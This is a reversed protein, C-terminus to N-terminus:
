LNQIITETDTKSIFNDATGYNMPLKDIEKLLTDKFLSIIKDTDDWTSRTGSDYVIKEIKEKLTSKTHNGCVCDPLHIKYNPMNDFTDKDVEIERLTYKPEEKGFNVAEEHTTKRGCGDCTYVGRENTLNYKGDHKCEEKPLVGCKNCIFCLQSDSWEKYIHECQEKKQDLAELLQNIINETRSSNLSMPEGLELREIEKGNIRYTKTM